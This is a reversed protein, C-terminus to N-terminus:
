DTRSPPKRKKNVPRRVEIDVETRKSITVIRLLVVPRSSTAPEKEELRYVGKGEKKETAQRADEEPETRATPQGVRQTQRKARKRKANTKPSPACIPSYNKDACKGLVEDSMPDELGQHGNGEGKVSSFEGM